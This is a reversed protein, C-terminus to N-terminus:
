KIKLRDLERIIVARCWDSKYRNDAQAAEEIRRQEDSNLTISLFHTRNEKKSM